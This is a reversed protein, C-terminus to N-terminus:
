PLLQVKLANSFQIGSPAPILVQTYVSFNGYGGPIGKVLVEGAANTTLPILVSPSLTPVIVGLKYPTYSASAAALLFVPNNAPAFQLRLDAKNGSSLAGGYIRLKASGPGGNGLDQQEVMARVVRVSGANVVGSVDKDPAGVAVELWGDFDLDGLAAVSFGFRSASEDGVITNWLTTHNAGSLIRAYGSGTFTQTAGVLVDQKGDQNVDGANALAAGFGDDQADGQATWIAAGGWPGPIVRVQGFGAAEGPAGIVLDMLGDGNVDAGAVASGAKGSTETGYGGWITGGNSGDKVTVFGRGFGSSGDDPAGIALDPYGNGNMDGIAAISRGFHGFDDTGIFTYLVSGTAGSFVRVMGRDAPGGMDANYASAAYDAHGDKDMDGVGAVQRGWQANTEPGTHIALISWDKGSFVDIRGYETGFVKMDPSGVIVDPWGDNNVDGAGAVAAGFAADTFGTLTTLVTQNAGSYITVSGILNTASEPAGVAFDAVGDKDVDGISAVSTGYQGWPTAGQLTKLTSQGVAAQSALMAAGLTAVFAARRYPVHNCPTRDPQSM